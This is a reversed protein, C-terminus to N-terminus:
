VNEPGRLKEVIYIIESFDDITYQPKVNGGEIRQSATWPTISSMLRKNAPSSNKGYKAWINNIGVEIAPLIDKGKNDGVAYVNKTSLGYERIIKNIIATNPKCQINLYQVFTAPYVNETLSKVEDELTYIKDFFDEIGLVKLRFNIWYARADSFAFILYNNRKAWELVQRVNPYLCLREQFEKLFLNQAHNQIRMRESPSLLSSNWIDLEQVSNVVEVSRHRLFVKKFSELIIKNSFKTAKSLYRSTISLAPAFADMWSYLTNDLDLILTIKNM